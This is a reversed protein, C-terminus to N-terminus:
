ATPDWVGSFLALELLDPSAVPWGVGSEALQGAAATMWELYVDYRHPTWGGDSWIWDAVAAVSPLGMALGVRTAHARLINAVRQDLILARPSSPGDVALDLFYFLKTFFAPGLGKVAGYLVRYAAAANDEKLVSAAEALAPAVAPEALIEKLRHPGYGTRGQGWVYSAVLAESWERREVAEGVAAVVQARSVMATRAQTLESFRDPWPEVGAWHMPTYEVAHGGVGAAYRAGAGSLWAGLTQIASTPLLRKMLEADLADALDQRRM